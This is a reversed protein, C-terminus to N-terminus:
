LLYADLWREQNYTVAILLHLLANDQSITNLINRCSVDV